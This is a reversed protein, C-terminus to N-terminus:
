SMLGAVVLLHQVADRQERTLSHSSMWERHLGEGDPDGAWFTTVKVPEGQRRHPPDHGLRVFLVAGNEDVREITLLEATTTM